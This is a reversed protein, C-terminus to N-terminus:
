EVESEAAIAEAGEVTSEVAKGSDFPIEIKEGTSLRLTASEIIEDGDLTSVSTVILEGEGKTGVVDYVFTDDSQQAGSSIFNIDMERIEGLHQRIEPQDRLQVKVQETVVTLGYRTFLAGGGCCFLICLSFIGGIVALWIMGSGSKRPPPTNPPSRYANGQDSM